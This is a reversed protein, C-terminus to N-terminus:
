IMFVILSKSPNHVRGKSEAVSLFGQIQRIGGIPGKEVWPCQYQHQGPDSSEHDQYQEKM